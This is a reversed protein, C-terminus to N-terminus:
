SPLSRWAGLASRSMFYVMVFLSSNEKYSTKLLQDVRWRLAKAAHAAHRSGRKPTFFLIRLSYDYKEESFKKWSKWFHDDHSSVFYTKLKYKYGLSRVVNNWRQLLTTPPDLCIVVDLPRIFHIFDAGSYGTFIPEGRLCVISYCKMIKRCELDLWNHM